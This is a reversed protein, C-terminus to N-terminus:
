SKNQSQGHFVMHSPLTGTQVELKRMKLCSYFLLQKKQLNIPNFSVLRVFARLMSSLMWQCNLMNGEKRQGDSESVDKLQVRSFKLPKRVPLQVLTKGKFFLLSPFPYLSPLSPSPLFPIFLYTFLYTKYLFFLHLSHLYTRRYLFHNIKTPFEM